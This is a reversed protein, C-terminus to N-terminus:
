WPPDGEPRRGAPSLSRPGDGTASLAQRVAQVLRDPPFPKQLLDPGGDGLLKRASEPLGQNSTFLLRVKPDARRLRRATEVGDMGQLGVDVLALNCPSQRQQELAEPGTGATEVAYGAGSLALAVYRLVMRDKDIVLVRERAEPPVVAAIPLYVRAVTGGSEGPEVRLGAGNARAVAAAIGLGLGRHRPKTSFLPEVLVRERAEPTLGSGNDALTVALCPGPTPSGDLTLCDETTLTATRAAVTITGHGCLADRANDVLQSFLLRLLELDVGAAPLDPPADVQLRIADSTERSLRRAEEGLVLQL